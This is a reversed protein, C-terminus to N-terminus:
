ATESQCVRNRGLAKAQYLARDASQVLDSATAGDEPFTAVGVSVTVESGGSLGLDSTEVMARIKEAFASAGDRGTEPLIVAFEEGGYRAVVDHARSGDAIADAVASLAKDGALHGHRDNFRKFHDVDCLAVSLPRDHRNSRKMETDLSSWFHGYNALGTLSDRQARELMEEFRRANGLAAAAHGAIAELLKLDNADFEDRSSKNNVNIVGHAVGDILLPASICSSTYYREHNRRRFRADKEIDAILLPKATALVYGSIERGVAIRTDAGVPAPLGRSLVIRLRQERDLLLISGIESELHNLTRDLLREIVEHVALTSTLDRITEYLVELEANRRQLKDLAVAAAAGTQEQRDATM